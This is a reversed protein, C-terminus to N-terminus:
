GAAFMLVGADVILNGIRTYQVQYDLRNRDSDDIKFLAARADATENQVWGAKAYTLLRSTWAGKARSPTCVNLNYEAALSGDPALKNTPFLDSFYTRWDYRIRSAVATEMIDFWAAIDSVGQANTTYTSVVRQLTVTGDRLVNFTSGKGALMNEQETDDLLDPRQPGVIGPLALDRLQLSPDEMLKQSAVGLLSASVAWPPSGPSTMPLAAIFPSNINPIAALAQGYTGTLCTFAIGDERVNANFRRALEAALAQLNPADQWAIAIGTYWMGTIDSVNLTPNTAGLTGDAAVTVIMGKPLTDGSAPSVFGLIDNGALGKNKATFTVVGLAASATVPAHPDANVAAALATAMTSVTDTSQTGLAYRKGAIAIATTGSTSWAGSFSVTFTAAVAGAADSVGIVDLPIQAGSNLYAIVMAEAISGAGFLATAQAPEVVNAQIIDPTASGATLMNGIILNRAPFPLIGINAYNPRVEMYSGPRYLPSPIENFTFNPVVQTGSM